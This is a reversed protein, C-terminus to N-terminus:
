NDTNSLFADARAIRGPEDPLLSVTGRMSRLIIPTGGQGTRGDLTHDGVPGFVEMELESTIRGEIARLSVDADADKPLYVLIPGSETQATLSNTVGKMAITDADGRVGLNVQRPVFVLLDIPEDSRGSKVIIRLDTDHIQFRIRSDLVALSARSNHQSATIRVRNSNWTQVETRGSLNEIAIAEFKQSFTKQFVPDDIAVAVRTSTLLLLAGIGLCTTCLIRRNKM